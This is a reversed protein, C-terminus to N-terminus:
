TLSPTPVHVGSLYIRFSAPSCATLLFCSFWWSVSYIILISSRQALLYFKLCGPLYFWPPQSPLRYCSLVNKKLCIIYLCTPPHLSSDRPVWTCLCLSLSSEQLPLIFYNRWSGPKLGQFSLFRIAVGVCFPMFRFADTFVGTILQLSSYTRRQTSPYGNEGEIEM